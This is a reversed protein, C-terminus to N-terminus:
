AYGTSNIRYFTPVSTISLSKQPVSLKHERKFESLLNLEKINCLFQERLHKDFKIAEPNVGINKIATRRIQSLKKLPDPVGKLSLVKDLISVAGDRDSSQIECAAKYFSVAFVNINEEIEKHSIKENVIIEIAEKHKGNEAYDIAEQLFKGHMLAGLDKLGSL